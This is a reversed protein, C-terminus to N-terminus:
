ERKVLRGRIDPWFELWLNGVFRGLFGNCIRRVNGSGTTSNSPLWNNAVLNSGIAAAYRAWAPALRGGRRRGVFVTM